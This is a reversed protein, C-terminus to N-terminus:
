RPRASGLDALGADSISCSHGRPSSGSADSPREAQGPHAGTLSVAVECPAPEHVPALRCLRRVLAFSASSGPWHCLVIETGSKRIASRVAWATIVVNDALGVVPIFDPILNIPQANYALAAILRWRVPWAVRKDRALGVLLRVLDPYLRLLDARPMDRPAAILSAVIVGAMAAILATGLGIILAIV